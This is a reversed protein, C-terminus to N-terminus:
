IQNIGIIKEGFIEENEVWTARLIVNGINFNMNAVLECQNNGQTKINALSTDDVSFTVMKAVREDDEYVKATYIGNETMDIKDKGEIEIIIDPLPEPEEPPIEPPEGNDGNDGNEPPESEEPPEVYDVINFELNDTNADYLSHKARFSIIGDQTLGDIRTIEFIENTNHRFIIRHNKPIKRTVENDQVLIMIQDTAMTFYDDVGIGTSYVSTKDGAFCPIKHIELTDPDQYTLIHNCHIITGRKYVDDIMSTETCIFMESKWKVYDGEFINDGPKMFIRYNGEMGSVIHVGFDQNNIEVEYYSMNSEFDDLLQNQMDEISGEKAGIKYAKLRAKYLNMNLM